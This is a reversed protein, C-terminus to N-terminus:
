QNRESWLWCPAIDSNPHFTLRIPKKDELNQIYIDYKGKASDHHETPSATWVIWENKPGWEPFYNWQSSNTLRTNQLSKANIQYLDTGGPRFFCMIFDEASHNWVSFCGMHVFRANEIFYGHENIKLDSIYVGRRADRGGKFLFSIQKGDPSLIPSIHGERGPFKEFNIKYIQKSSMERIYVDMVNLEKTQFLVKEMDNTTGRLFENQQSQSLNQINQGEHDMSYIQWTGARDSTFIILDEKSRPEINNHNGSTLSKLNRGDAKMKMIQWYGSRNSQFIIEGPIKDQISLLAQVEAQNPQNLDQALSVSTYFLLSIIFLFNSKM